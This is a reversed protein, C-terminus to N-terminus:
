RGVEEISLIEKNLVSISQPNVRVSKGNELLVVVRTIKSIDIKM